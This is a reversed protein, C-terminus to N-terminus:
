SWTELTSVLTTLFQNAPAADLVRHDITLTIYAMPRIQIADAGDVERVVVDKRLKGVGLIASQPQNIVIPTAILSGSVGHNSITFTGGESDEPSLRRQRAKNTLRQLEAAIGELSRSECNRVVPVVLGQDVATGVGINIDDYIEIQDEIIRSNVLPVKHMARVCASIIYSTLTLHVGRREFNAKVTNRHALVRSFDCEFVTTVHPAKQLLSEVMHAAIRKRMPDMKVRRGRPQGKVEQNATQPAPTSATNPQQELFRQIDSATVRGARGSGTLSAVDIGHEKILRRVVPSLRRRGTASTNGADSVPKAKSSPRVAGKAPAVGESEALLALVEGPAVEQGEAKVIDKLTGSSPAPVEVVVKDTEIEAVPEHKAVREGPKALWKSLVASTGEQQDEPFRIETVEVM